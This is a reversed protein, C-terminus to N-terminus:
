KIPITVKFMKSGDKMSESYLELYLEADVFDEPVEVVEEFYGWDMFAATTFGSHIVDGADTILNYSVTGEHVNAIGTLLYENEGQEEISFIKIWESSAIIPQEITDIGWLGMFYRNEDDVDSFKLPSEKDEVVILDYPYTIVQTVTAGEEPETTKINFVLNGDVATVEEVKVAYGGTPKQGETVFVYRKGDLVKEQVAPVKRSHEIWSRIEDPLKESDPRYFASETGLNIINITHYDNKQYDVNYGLAQSVFRLPVYTRGEKIVAITDMEITGNSTIVEQSDITIHIEENESKTITVTKTANDWDTEYGLGESVARLPIQTRSQQDLFPSGLHNEITFPEDNIFIRFDEEAAGTVNAFLLIALGIIAIYIFSSKKM